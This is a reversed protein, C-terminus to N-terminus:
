QLSRLYAIVDRRDAPSLLHAPMRNGPKIAQPDDIWENLRDDSNALTGAAISRRSGVHTLDPGVHSGAITGNISHCVVCPSSVLVDRGHMQEPTSPERAPTRQRQMWEQFRDMPEAVVFFAMKAHEYGCFEACQGRYIGPTDAQIWTHTIMGPILDRKGELNPVWFSHIVDPSMARIVVPVGVPIHMENPSTVWDSPTVDRYRFEWWWQHGIVDVTVAGPGSPSSLGRDALASATVLGVLILMTVVTLTVVFRNIRSTTEPADDTDRRRRALAWCLALLVLLYVVTSVGFLTWMLGGIAQAIPGRPDLVSQNM